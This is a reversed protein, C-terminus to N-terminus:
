FLVAVRCCSCDTLCCFLLFAVAGSIEFHRAQAAQHRHADRVAHKSSAWFAVMPAALLAPWVWMPLRRWWSLTPTASPASAADETAAAAAAASATRRYTSFNRRQGGAATGPQKQAFAAGADREKVSVIPHGTYGDITQREQDDWIDGVEAEFERRIRGTKGSAWVQKLKRTAAQQETGEEPDLPTGELASDVRRPRVFRLKPKGDKGLPAKAAAEEAADEEDQLEPHTAVFERQERVRNKLAFLRKQVLDEGPVSWNSALKAQHEKAYPIGDNEQDQRDKLWQEYLERAEVDSARRMSEDLLKSEANAENQTIEESDRAFQVGAAKAAMARAEFEETEFDRNNLADVRGLPKGSAPDIEHIYGGAVDEPKRIYPDSLETYEQADTFDWEEIPPPNEALADDQTESADRYKSSQLAGINYALSQEFARKENYAAHVPDIGYKEAPREDYLRTAAKVYPEPLDKRLANYSGWERAVFEKFRGNTDQIPMAGFKMKAIFGSLFGLMKRKEPVSMRAAHIPVEPTADAKNNYVDVPAVRPICMQFAERLLVHNDHELMIVLSPLTPVAAVQRSACLVVCLALLCDAAQPPKCFPGCITNASSRRAYRRDIQSDVRHGNEM